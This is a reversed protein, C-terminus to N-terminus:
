TLMQANQPLQYYRSVQGSNGCPSVRDSRCDYSDCCRDSDKGGREEMKHRALYERCRNLEVDVYSCEHNKRVLLCNLAYATDVDVDGSSFDHLGYCLCRPPDCVIM